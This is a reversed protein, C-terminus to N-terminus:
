TTAEAALQLVVDAIAPHTGVPATYVLTRGGRRVEGGDIALDGPITQGVHWGEAIFMPVMFVRDAATLDFVRSMEPAQDMFVTVVEAFDGSARLVESQAFVNRESTPNRRTGHGLIVVADGRGAGANLARQRAVEALAPHSGVPRTYRLDVGRIRQQVLESDPTRLESDLGLERPLVERTFYGDSIFVPVAIVTEGVRYRDSWRSVAPEEKWFAVDTRRFKGLLRLGDAIAHIPESSHADLHSGHGLLLLNADPM